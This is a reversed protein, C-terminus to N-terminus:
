RTEGAFLPTGPVRRQAYQRPFRMLDAKKRQSEGLSIRPIQRLRDFVLTKLPNEAIKELPATV